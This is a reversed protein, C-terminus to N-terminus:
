APIKRARARRSMGQIPSRMRRARRVSAPCNVPASQADHEADLRALAHLDALRCEWDLRGVLWGVAYGQNLTM